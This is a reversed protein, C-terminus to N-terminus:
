YSDVFLLNLYRLQPAEDTLSEIESRFYPIKVLDDYDIVVQFSRHSMTIHHEFRHELCGCLDFIFNAYMTNDTEIVTM